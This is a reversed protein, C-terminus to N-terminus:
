YRKSKDAIDSPIHRLSVVINVIAKFIKLRNRANRYDKYLRSSSALRAIQLIGALLILNIMPETFIM